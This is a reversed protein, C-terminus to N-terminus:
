LVGEIVCLSEKIYTYHDTDHLHNFYIRFYEKDCGVGMKYYKWSLFTKDWLVDFDTRYGYVLENVLSNAVYGRVEAQSRFFSGPLLKFLGISLLWFALIPEHAAFSIMIFPLFFIFDIQSSLYGYSFSLKGEKFDRLHAFEHALIAFARKREGENVEKPIYVKNGITTTMKMFNKNFFLLISLFKMFWSKEKEVIEFEPIEKSITRLLNEISREWDISNM